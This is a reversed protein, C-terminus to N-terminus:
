RQDGLSQLTRIELLPEHGPGGVPEGYVGEVRASVRNWPGDRGPM